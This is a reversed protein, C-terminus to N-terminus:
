EHGFMTVPAASPMGFVAPCVAMQFTSVNPSSGARRPVPVNGEVGPPGKGTVISTRLEPSRPSSEVSFLM